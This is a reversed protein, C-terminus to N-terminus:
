HPAKTAQDGLTRSFSPNISPPYDYGNATRLECGDTIEDERDIRTRTEFDARRFNDRAHAALALM